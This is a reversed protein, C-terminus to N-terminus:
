QRRLPSISLPNNKDITVLKKEELFNMWARAADTCDCYNGYRSKCKKKSFGLTTNFHFELLKIVLYVGDDRKGGGGGVFADVVNYKLIDYLGPFYMKGSSDFGIIGTSKLYHEYLQKENKSSYVDMFASISEEDFSDFPIGFDAELFHFRYYSDIGTDKLLLPIIEGIQQYSLDGLFKAVEITRKDPDVFREQIKKFRGKMDAVGYVFDNGSWITVKSPKYPQHEAFLKLASVCQNKVISDNSTSQLDRIKDIIAPSCREFKRLYKNCNGIIGLEEFLKAKYLFFSLQRKDTAIQSLHDSYFKDLIRGLSFTARDYDDGTLGYYELATIDNWSLKDLINNEVRYKLPFSPFNKLLRLSDSLWAPLKYSFGNERCYQTLLALKPLFSFVFSPLTDNKDPLGYDYAKALEAVIIPDLETLQMFAENALKNDASQLAPFLTEEKSKALPLEKINEFYGKEKNWKYDKYHNVWYILHNLKAQAYYDDNYLFTTKNDEDPVGVEIHTLRKIMKKFDEDQFYYVNFRSRRQFWEAAIWVLAQPDKNTLFGDLQNEYYWDPYPFELTDKNIFEIDYNSLQKLQYITTRKELPTVLFTGSLDDFQVKNTKLFRTFSAANATSDLKYESPLFLCNEQLIRRAVGRAKNPYNHYGLFEQVFSTDSLFPALAELSLIDGRQINDELQYLTAKIDNVKKPKQCFGSFSIFSFVLLLLKHM